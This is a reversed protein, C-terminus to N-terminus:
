GRADDQRLVDLLARAAANEALRKSTGEGRVPPHGAVGVEITFRPAHDPGTRGVERYDPIPLGRAQAWEQLAMKAPVPPTADAAVLPAWRTEIFNRAAADGGDLWLAAIVAEMADALVSDRDRLGSAEEGPPLVLYAGLGIERAVATLAGARVLASHRRSIMGEPEDAFRRLLWAAIVLDLVRDGLFELREYSPHRADAASPHTLAERLLAPRAFRHGLRATLDDLNATAAPTL